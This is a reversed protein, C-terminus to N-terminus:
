ELMRYKLQRASNNNNIPRHKRFCCLQQRIQALHTKKQMVSLPLVIAAPPLAFFSGAWKMQLSTRLISPFFNHLCRLTLQFLSFLIFTPLYWFRYETGKFTNNYPVKHNRLLHTNELNYLTLLSKRKRRPRPLTFAIWLELIDPEFGVLSQTSKEPTFHRM